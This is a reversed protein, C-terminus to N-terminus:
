LTDKFNYYRLDGLITPQWQYSVWIFFFINVSFVNFAVKVLERVFSYGLSVTSFGKFKKLEKAMFM